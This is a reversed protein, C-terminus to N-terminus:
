WGGGLEAWQEEASKGQAELHALEDMTRAGPPLSHTACMDPTCGKLVAMSDPCLRYFSKTHMWTCDGAHPGVKELVLPVANPPNYVSMFQLAPRCRM